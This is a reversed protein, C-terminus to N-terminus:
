RLVVRQRYVRARREDVFQQFAQTAFLQTFFPHESAVAGKLFRPADFINKPLPEDKTPFVLCTKYDKLCTVFFRLAAERVPEWLSRPAVAVAAGEAEDVGGAFGHRPASSSAAASSARSGRRPMPMIPDSPARSRSSASGVRPRASAPASAAGGGVSSSADSTPAHAAVSTATDGDEDPLASQAFAQDSTALVQQRWQPPRRAQLAASAAAMARQLKREPRQPLAPLPAGDPVHLVGHDLDLVVLAPSLHVGSAEEGALTKLEAPRFCLQTFHATHLGVIFPTPTHLVGLLARPLVPVYLHCWRFPFLLSLMVELTPTLLSLHESHVVIQRELLAAALLRLLTDAPLLDFAVAFPLPSSSLPDNAPPRAFTLVHGTPTAYQVQLLGRPPAPLELTLNLIYRELPMSMHSLSLRYLETLLRRMAQLFPHASMVCLCKPAFWLLPPPAGAGAPAGGRLPRPGGAGGARGSSGGGSDEGEREGEDAYGEKVSGGGGHGVKGQVARNELVSFALEIEDSSFSFAKCSRAQNIM